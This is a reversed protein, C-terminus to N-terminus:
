AVTDPDPESWANLLTTYAKVAEHLATTARTASATMYAQVAEHPETESGPAPATFADWTLAARLVKSAALDIQHLRQRETVTDDEHNTM